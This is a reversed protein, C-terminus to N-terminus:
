PDSSLKRGYKSLLIQIGFYGMFEPQGSSNGSFSRGAMFLLIFGRHLKYRGGFDFTTDHPLAGMARDNYFETDLELRKTVSRGAVFGIIREHPGHWPFYYGAEFDVDLPGVKRAVEVPLLFRPGISAIGKQQALVSGGTEIQPFTSIQWGGEGRDFFRWKVGPYANSWGTELPLQTSTQVIYPVEYTLQIRSGVGYNLDIQPVQYSKQGRSIIPMAALNIEWNANGPTGPDNSIYPPGAQACATSPSCLVAAFLYLLLAITIQLRMPPCGIATVPKAAPAALPRAKTPTLQSSLQVCHKASAYKSWVGSTEQNMTIHEYCEAASPRPYGTMLTRPSFDQHFVGWVWSARVGNNAVYRGAALVSDGQTGIYQMTHIATASTAFGSLEHHRAVADDVLKPARPRRQQASSRAAKEPQGALTHVSHRVVALSGGPTFATM